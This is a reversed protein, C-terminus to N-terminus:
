DYRVHDKRRRGAKQVVVGKVAKIGPIEETPFADNLPKLYYRQDHIVLQRFIYEGRLMAIVYAGDTALGTPDIIVIAGDQFEPLMSDGIVRLAYPESQSCGGEM